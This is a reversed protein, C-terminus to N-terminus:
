GTVTVSGMETSAKVVYQSGASQPVSVSRSGMQTGAIVDYAVTPPLRLYVSGEQTSATVLRPAVRFVADVGGQDSSLTASTASLGVGSIQGQGTRATVSGAVGTLDVDGQDTTATLQGSVRRVTINGQDTSAVSRGTLSTLRVDGQDSAAHVSLGAPMNVSLSVQCSPEPPCNATVTLTGDAVQSSIVPASGQYRPTATMVASRGTGGTVTVQGSTTIVTVKSLGATPVSWHRVVTLLSGHPPGAPAGTPRIGAPIGPGTGPRAPGAAPHPIVVTLLAVLAVAVAAAGPVLWRRAPRWHVRWSRAPAPDAIVALVDAKHRERDPLERSVPAPPLLAALEELPNV